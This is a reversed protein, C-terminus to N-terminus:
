TKQPAVTFFYFSPGHVFNYTGVTTFKTTKGSSDDLVNIIYHGDVIKMSSNAGCGPKLSLQGIMKQTSDSFLVTYYNCSSTLRANLLPYIYAVPVPASTEIQFTPSIATLKPATAASAGEGLYPMSAKIVVNKRLKGPVSNIVTGPFEYFSNKPITWSVGPTGDDSGQVTFPFNNLSLSGISFTITDSGSADLFDSFDGNGAWSILVHEGEHFVKPNPDAPVNNDTVTNNDHKLPLVKLTNAILLSPTKASADVKNSLVGNKDATLHYITADVYVSKSIQGVTGTNVKTGPLIQSLPGLQWAQHASGQGVSQECDSLKPATRLLKSIGSIAGGGIKGAEGLVPHLTCVNEQFLKGIGQLIGNGKLQIDIKEESFDGAVLGGAKWAVNISDGPHLVKTGDALNTVGTITISPKPTTATALSDQSGSSLSVVFDSVQSSNALIFVFCLAIVLVLAPVVIKKTMSRHSKTM